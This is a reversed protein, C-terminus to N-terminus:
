GGDPSRDTERKILAIFLTSLLMVAVGLSFALSYSRSVDFILGGIYPGIAAGANFGADLVGLIAGLRSLGFTDGILAAMTPGMGGWSFGFALAFLYFMWLDRVWLLWVMAGVHLLACTVAAAKRGIKDSATGLLLRGVITAGGTLSLVIAAEVASFGIDTAHPVLHTM